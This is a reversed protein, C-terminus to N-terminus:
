PWPRNDALCDALEGWTTQIQRVSPRPGLRRLLRRALPGDRLIRTQAGRYEPSLRDTLRNALTQWLAGAPM